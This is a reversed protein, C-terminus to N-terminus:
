ALSATVRHLIIDFAESADNVAERGGVPLTRPLYILVVGPICEEM